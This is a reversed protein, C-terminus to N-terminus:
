SDGTRPRTVGGALSDWVRSQPGARFLQQLSLPEETGLNAINSAAALKIEVSRSLHEHTDGKEIGM